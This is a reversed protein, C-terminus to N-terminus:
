KYSRARYYYTTAPECTGDMYSTVNAAVTAIVTWGTTGNPSREIITGLENSNADTWSLLVHKAGQVSAGFSAPPHFSELTTANATSSYDGYTGSVNARVRYYYDTLETLGTDSYSTANAAPTAIETWSTSGNPSREVSYATEGTANDTWSLDIRTDSIATATLGTPAAATTTASVTSSYASYDSSVYARVRYYYATNQTLGTDNYSTANASTTNIVTWSSSGDPSREIKYGDEAGSNDTWSLNIQTAGIVSLALDTPAVIDTTASATNSYGSDGDANTAKVRYYHTSHESLGTHSYSTTNAALTDLTSWASGNNSHEVVFNTEDSSNDTWTLDIQSDSVASASLSSPDGAPPTLEYIAVTICKSTTASGTATRTGTAGATGADTQTMCYIPVFADYDWRENCSADATSRLGAGLVAFCALADHDHTTTVGPFTRNGSSSNTQTASDDVDLAKGSDSYWADIALIQTGGSTSWGVSYSSGESNATRKYIYISPTGTISAVLTWGSPAPTKDNSNSVQMLMFDGDQIGSVANVSGPNTGSSAATSVGRHQISM